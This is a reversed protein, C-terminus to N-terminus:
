TPGSALPRTNVLGLHADMLTGLAMATVAKWSLGQMNGLSAIPAGLARKISAAVSRIVRRVDNEISM